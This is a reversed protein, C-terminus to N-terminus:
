ITKVHLFSYSARSTKKLVIHVQEGQRHSLHSSGNEARLCLHSSRNEARLVFPRFSGHVALKVPQRFAEEGGSDGDAM